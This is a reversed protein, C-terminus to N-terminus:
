NSIVSEVLVDIMFGRRRAKDSVNAAEVAM